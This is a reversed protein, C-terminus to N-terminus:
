AMTKRSSVTPFAGISRPSLRPIAQIQLQSVTLIDSVQDVLLGVVMTQIEAM